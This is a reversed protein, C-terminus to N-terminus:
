RPGTLPFESKNIMQPALKQEKIGSMLSRVFRTAGMHEARFYAHDVMEFSSPVGNVSILDRQDRCSPVPNVTPQRVHADTQSQGVGGVGVGRRRGCCRWQSHARSPIFCIPKSRLRSKWPQIINRIRLLHLNGRKGMPKLQWFGIVLGEPINRVRKIWKM